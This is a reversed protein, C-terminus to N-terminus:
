KIKDLIINWVKQIQSVNEQFWKKDRIITTLHFIDLKWYINKVWIHQDKEYKEKLEDFWSDFEQENMDLPKYIYIPIDVNLLNAFYIIIGKNIEQDTSLFNGDQIFSSYNEYEVFKTELFDCTDLNCVEMQLQTQIWYEEKPIGTIERSVVNKIELMRGYKESTEDVNIGDPSAGIFDYQPHRICGFEKIITNNKLEYFMTSLPEYKQGWQLPSDLSSFRPKYPETKEVILQHQLKESGFAKYASSATILSNRFLYWEETKQKPQYVNSLYEIQEKHREMDNCLCYTFYYEFIYEIFDDMEETSEEELWEYIFDILEEKNTESESYWDYSDIFLLISEMMDEWNDWM